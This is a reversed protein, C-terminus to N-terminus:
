PSEAKYTTDKINVSVLEVNVKETEDPIDIEKQFSETQLPKVYEYFVIEKEEVISETKSLFSLKYKIDKITTAHANNTVRVKLSQTFYNNELDHEYKVHQTINEKELKHLDNLLEYYDSMEKEVASNGNEQNNNNNCAFCLVAIVVILAVNFRM